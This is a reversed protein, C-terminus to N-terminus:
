AIPRQAGQAIGALTRCATFGCGAVRSDLAAQPQLVPVYRKKQIRLTKLAPSLSLLVEKYM